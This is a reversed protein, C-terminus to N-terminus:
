QLRARYFRWRLNTSVPDFFYLPSSVVSNTVLPTWNILDTSGEVVITQGVLGSVDFGFGKTQFGFRADSAIIQPQTSPVTVTLTAVASTVSGYPSTVVVTYNGANCGEVNLITLSPYEAYLLVKRIVMHISDAIYLNGVFDLALGSAEGLSANTAAEGDGYYGYGGNGAATTIMGNASVKRIRYNGSDAIYLNGSFDLALGSPDRPYIGANTASVNDGSYSSAGNGAVTSIIGTTNVKRVRNNYSDEIYLNGVSDLAVGNPDELKANTAAGGDGSFGYTSGALTTIIGNTSVKRIRQGFCDAIYLNGISDLAVGSPYDLATNTAAGNDDSYGATGNGAVTSIVGNTNVKRVCNNYRDAIYLNGISDLAVGSPYDLTANTAAGNDGSYGATGNGAVTSIINPLNTGNFQWQYTFPGSGTASVNFAATAGPLCSLSSPQITISIPVWVTLTAVASTLRGYPSSAIFNYNGANAPQANSITLISNTAGPLITGNFQWSFSFPGPGTVQAQFSPNSGQVVVLNAPQSTILPLSAIFSPSALANILNSGNPTGWGTCLDYGPVAFFNTRFQPLVSNSIINNGTTIDHFCSHYNTNQCIAYIAPNAFGLPPSGNAALQQNVLAALGAWLPAAASTGGAGGVSGNLFLLINDAVMSVDPSNRYVTSGGNASMDIGQQWSPIGYYSCIGGGSIDNVNGNGYNWTTESLWSGGPGSTTLITGGVATVYPDGGSHLTGHVSSYGRDGSAIFVSQGQMAFQQYIIETNPDPYFDWSVSIQNALDDTAIRNQLGNVDANTEEYVLVESLGPAMAVAMEIDLTVELVEMSNSTSPIGNFGGLLVNTLPVQPLNCLKEYQTIDNPYYGGILEVLAVAQGSGTLAVGPVYAARIDNALYLGGQGTGGQPTPAQPKPTAQRFNPHPVIYNDLGSIHLIQVHCDLSPDVDPAFFTRPETPHQYLLLSVHFVSEIEEVTGSVNLLTRNPHTETVTLGNSKAFDILTKYDKESPGFRRAFEGRALYKHFNSSSPNYMERLLNDAEQQDPLPLGITVSLRKLPDLRGVSRM